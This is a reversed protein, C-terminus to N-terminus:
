TKKEWSLAQSLAEWPMTGRFMRYLHSEGRTLVTHPLLSLGHEQKDEQERSGPASLHTYQSLKHRKRERQCVPNTSSILVQDPVEGLWRRLVNEGDGVDGVTNRQLNPDLREGALGSVGSQAAADVSAQWRQVTLGGTQPWVQAAVTGQGAGSLALIGVLLAEKWVRVRM